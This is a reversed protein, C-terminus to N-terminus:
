PDGRMYSNIEEVVQKNRNEQLLLKDRGSLKQIEEKTPPAPARAVQINNHAPASSSSIMEENKAVPKVKDEEALM